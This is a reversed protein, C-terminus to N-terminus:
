HSEVTVEAVKVEDSDARGASTQAELRKLTAHRYLGVVLYYQGPAATTPLNLTHRDWIIDGCLWQSTPFSGGIPQGDAQAITQIAVNRLHVFVTFDESTPELGIWVLRFVLPRVAVVTPTDVLTSALGVKSVFTAITAPPAPLSAGRVDILTLLTFRGSVDRVTSRDSPINM